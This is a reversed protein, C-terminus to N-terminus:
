RKSSNLDLLKQLRINGVFQILISTKLYKSVRLLTFWFPVVDSRSGFNFYEITKNVFDGDHDRLLHYFFDLSENSSISALYSSYKSANKRPNAEKLTTTSFESIERKLYYNFYRKLKVYRDNLNRTNGDHMGQIDIYINEADDIIGMLIARGFTGVLKKAQEFISLALIEAEKGYTSVDINEIVLKRLSDCEQQICQLIRYNPTNQLDYVYFREDLGKNVLKDYFEERIEYIRKEIDSLRVFNAMVPVNSSSVSINRDAKEFGEKLQALTFFQSIYKSLDPKKPVQRVEEFLLYKVQRDRILLDKFPLDIKDLEELFERIKQFDSQMEAMQIRTHILLCHKILINAAM